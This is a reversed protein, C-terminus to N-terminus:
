DKAFAKSGEMIQDRLPDPLVDYLRNVGHGAAVKLGKGERFSAHRMVAKLCLELAQTVNTM